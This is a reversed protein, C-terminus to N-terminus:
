NINFRGGIAVLPAGVEDSLTSDIIFMWQGVPSLTHISEPHALARALSGFAHHIKANAVHAYTVDGWASM